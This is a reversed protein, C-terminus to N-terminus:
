KIFYEENEQRIKGLSLQNSLAQELKLRINDGVRTFGLLNAITKFLGDKTIGVNLEIVKYIGCELEITPILMIDRPIDTDKPIRMEFSQNEVMYYDNIKKIEPHKSMAYKFKEKVVSTIKENGFYHLTRKLLLEETIPGETKVLNFIIKDFGDYGNARFIEYYRFEQKLDKVEREILFNPKNDQLIEEQLKVNNNFNDLASAVVELLKNKELKNNAFWDTSWVRYYNWGLRELVEQRLRDRDRTTKGTSYNQGDCEIALIYDPKTPHKVGLDIRYDSYGVNRVVNYGAKVLTDYVEEELLQSTSLNNEIEKSPVLTEMGLEAFELYEKLLKAGVSETRSLDIDYNRISSVFKVNYKARTIAVNLRREGGKKNLPGFNHLFKGDVDKAYAVSFIITDREDGQVTELNKVFFREPRNTDFFQAFSDDKERREQIVSEIAAQQSISFAVVGLSRHPSTKFHEFVLDVVKNAEIINTKTKRDFVGDQVYYFDVGNNAKDKSASPFTVLDGNYFHKNSFAILDETRSRYHWMLKEQEFATACLDLISEFDLSDDEEFDDDSDDVIEANFYNSPPMQKSDGVVIVQKARYIAGVADWPFIQSAEDFIVVDFKCSDGSLYTSVSLPSMLFCPKLTQVLESISQLLVRVPKQKRKKSAERLLTSVQSGSALTDSSPRENSLKAIIEAKAIEFKLKDKEKFKSVAIDQSVRTFDGLVRNKSLIYHMWQTYFMLKFTKDLFKPNINNEISKDIFTRLDIANLRDLIDNFRIWNELSDFQQIYNSLNEKLDQLKCDKFNVIDVNFHKQLDYVRDLRNKIDSLSVLYQKLYNQMEEFEDNDIKSLLVFDENLSLVLPKLEKELLGFDLYEDKNELYSLIQNKLKSAEKEAVQINKGIKLNRILDNYSLRMKPSVYFGKLITKDMRYQKNFIRFMSLYNNKFRLYYDNINLEFIEDLFVRGVFERDEKIKAQKLNYTVVCDYIKKLMNKKFINKDFYGLESIIKLLKESGIIDSIESYNTKCKNNVEDILDNVQELIQRAEILQNKLELKQSYDLKFNTFGYWNNLHYDYGISDSFNAYNNIVDLAQKFYDSGKSEINKWVYEFCIADNNHKAIEGIVEYPTKDLIPEITHLATKYEDLQLKFKKLDEVEESANTSVVTKNKNLVRHLENIVEKKNTKHSHLELCFDELGVKKLNNYVVNLAELKESVFLIKKDNYLFEAILNTITQSKGTGPPGQLVFSKGSQAQIIARMQSSDADVVNHLSVEKSERFYEDFDIPTTYPEEVKRNLLKKVNNNSLILEENEELDKYMNMKLFSFTGIAVKFSVDWDKFAVEQKVRMIYDHLSEEAHVEDQFEPMIIGYEHKMLYNLTPNTNIEDEYQSISFVPNKSETSDLHIPILILPSNFYQNTNDKEKWRLFGFAMYLINIGKELLSDSAVKKINKLTRQMSAGKKFSLVQGKKLKGGLEDLVQLKTLSEYPNENEELENVRTKNWEKVFADVEYFSLSDGNTLRHFVSEYDPALIEVSRSTEKYNILRNGKGADLLKERWKEFVIDM